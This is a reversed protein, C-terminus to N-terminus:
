ERLEFWITAGGFENIEAGIRGGHAEVLERAIALGLGTGGTDRSRSNDVRHFREFIAEAQDPPFGAGRDAVSTRVANSMHELRVFIPADDASYREANSLINQFVQHIRAPDCRVRPLIGISEITVRGGFPAAAERIEAGLDVFRPQLLLTGADGSSLQRLDGILRELLLADGHLARLEEATVALMGDQLSEISGRIRTLPTRFEHSLDAILEKRRIESRELKGALDNFSHALEGIEDDRSINVREDLSGSEMRRVAATLAAIPLLVLRNAVVLAGALTVLAIGALALWFRQDFFRQRAREQLRAAIPPPPIDQETITPPANGHQLVIISTEMRSINSTLLGLAAFSVLLLLTVALLIKARLTM